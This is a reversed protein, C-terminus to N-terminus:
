IGRGPTLIGHPDLAAKIARQARLTPEDFQLPLERYKLSGVGHEGTIVGGMSIALETIRDVVEEARKRDEPTEDSEIAPHLNGDGAHALISVGRGSEAAIEEVGRMMEVLNGVPVGVDCHVAYRGALLAGNALRRAELLEEGEFVQSQTAGWRRCTAALIGADREATPGVTKGLLLAAEPQPLGSPEFEEILRACTADILELVEPRPETSVISTVARGASELDDFSAFFTRPEGEPVPKLRVTARTIIGLTGESGVFLPTMNLGTSNKITRAGTHIISGDALVVELAAVAADTTGHAICRLGGANTAINGGVSSIHASAPDPAFFLGHERAAADLESTIVGPEVDALRNEVDIDLIANMADLSVVLGEPYGLSGGSLGTGAGRVSVPTRTRNAWRLARAVDDASGAVVVGRPMGEPEAISRDNIYGRVQDPDTLLRTGLEAALDDLTDTPNHTTM